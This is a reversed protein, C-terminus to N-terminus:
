REKMHANFLSIKNEDGTELRNLCGCSNTCRNKLECETCESPECSKRAIELQKETSIGGFVDGLCYEEDGIFQTCPYIKGDPAVPPQRFGLHCRESPNFGSICESIKSDFPSFFLYKGDLFLEGYFEATKQLQETLVNMKEDTWRVNGGYAPTATIRTFGLGYLYKVSEYYKDAAQPAITMMAYSLPMKKLLMEAKELVDYLSGSGDAYRRCIDQASGDFSLGIVMGAKKARNLFEEDLLTGNTTMKCNFSKGTEYSKQGCYDLATYILEKELTPEGGFFCLGASKGKSFALDCAALLTKESMSNSKKCRTCYACNMNCDDTLHLSFNM